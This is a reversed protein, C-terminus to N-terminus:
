RPLLANTGRNRFADSRDARRSAFAAIHAAAPGIACAIALAFASFIWVVGRAALARTGTGLNNAGLLAFTPCANDSRILGASREPAVCNRRRAQCFTDVVSLAGWAAGALVAGTALLGDAESAFGVSFAIGACAGITDTAVSGAIARAYCAVIRGRKSLADRRLLADVVWVFKTRFCIHARAAKRSLAVTQSAACPVLRPRHANRSGTGTAAERRRCHAVRLAVANQTRRYRARRKGALVFGAPRVAGDVVVAHSRGRTVVAATALAADTLGAGRCRM